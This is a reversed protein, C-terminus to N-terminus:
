EATVSLKFEAYDGSYAPKIELIYEGPTIPATWKITTGDSNEHYRSLLKTRRMDYLFIIPRVGTEPGIVGFEVAINHGGNLQHVKFYRSSDDELFRSRYTKGTEIPLAHQLHYQQQRHCRHRVRRAAGLNGARNPGRLTQRVPNLAQAHSIRSASRVEPARSFYTAVGSILAAAITAVVPLIIALRKWRETESGLSLTETLKISVAVRHPQDATIWRLYNNQVLVEYRAADVRSGEM